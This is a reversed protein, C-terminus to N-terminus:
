VASPVPLQLRGTKKLIRASIYGFVTLGMTIYLVNVLVNNGLSGTTKYINQLVASQCAIMWIFASNYEASILRRWNFRMSRMTEFLGSLKPVIRNVDKCYDDFDVGFKGRLFNEEAAIICTYAFLFFPMGLAMFLLSNSAIGTGLLITFNGVYLPNRCHAFIGGQVLHDAYPMRNKGGRRIYDLGVTVGRILQGSLAVWVGIVAVVRYDQYLLPGKLFLLTYVVPFLVNRYHYLFNGLRVKM